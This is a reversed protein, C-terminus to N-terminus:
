QSDESYMWFRDVGESSGGQDSGDDSEGVDGGDGGAQSGEQQESNM